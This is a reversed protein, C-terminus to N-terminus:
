YRRASFFPCCYKNFGLANLKYGHPIYDLAKSLDTLIVVFVGKKDRIKRIKEVM